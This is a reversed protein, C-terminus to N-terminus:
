YKLNLNSNPNLDLYAYFVRTHLHRFVYMQKTKIIKDLYKLYATCMCLTSITEKFTNDM